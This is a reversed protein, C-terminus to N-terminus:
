NEVKPLKYAKSQAERWKKCMLSHCKDCLTTYTDFKCNKCKQKVIKKIGRAM